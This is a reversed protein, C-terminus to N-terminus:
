MSFQTPSFHRAPCSFSDPVQDPREMVLLGLKKRCRGSWSNTMFHSVILVGILSGINRICMRDDTLGEHCAKTTAELGGDTELLDLRKDTRSYQGAGKCLLGEKTPRSLRRHVSVLLGTNMM